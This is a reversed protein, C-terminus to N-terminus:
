LRVRGSRTDVTWSWRFTWLSWYPARWRPGPYAASCAESCGNVDPLVRAANGNREVNKEYSVFRAHSQPEVHAHLQGPTFFSCRDDAMTGIRHVVNPAPAPTARRHDPHFGDASAVVDFGHLGRIPVVHEYMVRFLLRRDPMSYVRAVLTQCPYGPDRLSPHFEFRVTAIRSRTAAHASASFFVARTVPLTGNNDNWDLGDGARYHPSRGVFRKCSDHYGCSLAVRTRRLDYPPMM